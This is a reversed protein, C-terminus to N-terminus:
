KIPSPSKRPRKPSKRASQEMAALSKCFNMAGCILGMLVCVLIIWAGLQLKRQLWLGMMVCGVMPLAISLGLQTLWILMSWDM